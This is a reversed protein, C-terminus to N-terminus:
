GSDDAATAAVATNAVAAAFTDAAVIAALLRVEIHKKLPTDIKRGM